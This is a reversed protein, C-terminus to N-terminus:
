PNGGIIFSSYVVYSRDLLHKAEADRLGEKHIVWLQTRLHRPNRHFFSAIQAREKVSAGKHIYFYLRYSGPSLDVIAKSIARVSLQGGYAHQDLITKAVSVAEDNSIASAQSSKCYSAFDDWLQIYKELDFKAKGTDSDFERALASLPLYSEGKPAGYLWQAYPILGRRKAFSLKRGALQRSSHSDRLGTWSCNIARAMAIDLLIDHVLLPLSSIPTDVIALLGDSTRCDWTPTLTERTLVGILHSIQLSDLVADDVDNNFPSVHISIRVESIKPCSDSLADLANRPSSFELTRSDLKTALEPASIGRPALLNLTKKLEGFAGQVAHRAAEFTSAQAPSTPVEPQTVLVRRTLAINRRANSRKVAKPM